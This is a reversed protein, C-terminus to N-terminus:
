FNSYVVPKLYCKQQKTLLALSTSLLIWIQPSKSIEVLYSESKNHIYDEFISIVAYKLKYKWIYLDGGSMNHSM